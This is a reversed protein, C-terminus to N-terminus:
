SFGEGCSLGGRFAVPQLGDTLSSSTRKVFITSLVRVLLASSVTNYTYMAWKKAKFLASPLDIDQSRM